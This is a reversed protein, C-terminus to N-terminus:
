VGGGDGVDDCGESWGEGGSVDVCVVCEEFIGAGVCGGCRVWVYGFNM